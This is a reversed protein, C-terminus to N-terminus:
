IMQIGIEVVFGDENYYDLSGQMGEMFLRALYMGLGSGSTNKVSENSGRYYKQCILPLESDKVGTGFDKIKMLLLKKDRKLEFFVHIDTNAYKYSNSVINDIVQSLRLEDCYILCNPLTSKVKIKEYHSMENVMGEIVTSQTEKPEIKLMELEELTAHFMNSILKDIMDAKQYIIQVRDKQFDLLSIVDKSYLNDQKKFAKELKVQMLECIAKITSVPTKIDHSIEAILEKKSTNAEYEAQRARKLEHRMLDFSETFAGFYNNKQIDLPIDLNGKAVRKAFDQMNRFPLIIQHYLFAMAAIFTFWVLITAGLFIIFLQRREQYQLLNSNIFIVKGIIEEGNHLDLLILRDKIADNIRGEYNPDSKIIIEYSLNNLQGFRKIAEEQKDLETEITKVVHNIAIIDINTSPNKMISHFTFMLLLMFILSVGFILRNIKM